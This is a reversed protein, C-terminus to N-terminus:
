KIDKTTHTILISSSSRIFMAVTWCPRKRRWAGDYINIDTIAIPLFLFPWNCCVNSMYICVMLCMISLLIFVITYRLSSTWVIYYRLMHINLCISTLKIHIMMVGCSMPFLSLFACIRAYVSWYVFYLIAYWLNLSEGCLMREKPPSILM